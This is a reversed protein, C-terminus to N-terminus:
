VGITTKLVKFGEGSIAEAVTNQLENGPTLAIMYGGLGSGTMKAGWAGNKRAIDVLEDLEECSVEIAQLLEHNEFMLEGVKRFEGHELANKARPILEEANAFIKTYKEPQNDRRERVGEVAKKTNTVLGTNGMVIEVPAPTKIHSFKPTGTKKFEILGGYTAATNDVGSPEGHYAREGEFAIKNIMNNDLGLGFEDDIARAFAACSAASAGVGSAALLTGGFTVDLMQGQLDVGAASLMYEISKEQQDHKKIKYGPTEPRNDTIQFDLDDDRERPIVEATTTDGIASVIAPIGYVVFHENFLIAKGFGSGKGL